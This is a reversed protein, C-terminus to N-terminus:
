KIKERLEQMESFYERLYGARPREVVTAFAAYSSFHAFEARAASALVDMTVKKERAATEYALRQIQGNEPFQKLAATLDADDSKLEAASSKVILIGCAFKANGTAAFAERELKLDGKADGPLAAYLAINWLEADKGERALDLLRQGFDKKVVAEDIAKGSVAARIVSAILSDPSPLSKADDVLLSYKELIAKVDAEPEEAELAEACEAACRLSRVRLDDEPLKLAAVVAALDHSLYASHVGGNWWDQPFDCDLVILAAAADVDGVKVVKSLLEARRQHPAPERHIACVMSEMQEITGRPADVSQEWADIAEDVRGLRLLCDAQLAYSIAWQPDAESYKGYWKLAEAHAGARHLQMAWELAVYRNEPEREAAAKHLAYSLQRDTEFLMNGLM